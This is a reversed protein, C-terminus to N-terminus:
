FVIIKLAILCLGITLFVIGLISFVKIIIDNTKKDIYSETPNNPNYYITADETNVDKERYAGKNGRCYYEQGNVLYKFVPYYTRDHADNSYIGLEEHIRDCKGVISETCSSYLQDYHKKCVTIIILFLTGMIIFITGIFILVPFNM